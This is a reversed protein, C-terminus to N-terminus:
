KKVKNLEEIEKKLEIMRLERGVTLKHFKGLEDVKDQLQHTRKKVENELDAAYNRLKDQSKKLDSTMKNISNGLTEFEDETKMKIKYDLNGKGIEKIGTVLKIIPKVISKAFLMAFMATIFIVTIMIILIRVKFDYIPQFAQQEDLKGSIMQTIVNELIIESNYISFYTIILAPIIAILLFVIILKLNISIFTKERKRIREKKKKNKIVWM